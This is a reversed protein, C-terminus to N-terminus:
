AEIPAFRRLLEELRMRRVCREFGFSDALEEVDAPTAGAFRGAMDGLMAEALLIHRVLRHVLWRQGYPFPEFDPFEAAVLDELPQLVPRLHTDLTAWRDVGLRQKKDLVPQVRRMWASDPAAHVLGQVGVDKYTWIAWNAGYREYIELQDQLIRYRVRDREPDGTYVPGFEGVWIPTGTERMYRTRELFTRELADRDVYRGRTVGPYTGGDVHGPLAYDHTTYVVNPWPEGFMAFDTSFRNGELFVVHDPDQERIAEVLRRSVEVLRRGTPDAPENIPNYGAVWPHDRYRAAIAKWLNVARDQFHRHRWFLAEHGRNDAHWEQNQGGPLAHLDIVTYLGAAACTEIVRDLHRFGEERVEFPRMDDELHRYNVPLRVLNLGLASLYRADDPGFFTELIRDFLRGALEDGLVGVLAERLATETGPFGSIFNEMNMWGGLGVGLLRVPHGEPAVLDGGRVQLVTSM